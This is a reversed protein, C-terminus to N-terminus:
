HLKLLSLLKGVHSVFSGLGSGPTLFLNISRAIKCAYMNGETLVDRPLDKEKVHRGSALIKTTFNVLRTSWIVNSLHLSTIDEERTPIPLGEPHVVYDFRDVQEGAEATLLDLEESIDFCSRLASTQLQHLIDMNELNVMKELEEQISSLRLLVDIM